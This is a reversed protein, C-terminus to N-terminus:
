HHRRAGDRRRLEVGPQNTTSSCAPHSCVQYARVEVGNEENGTVVCTVFKSGFRGTESWKSPSPNQAQFRAAFQIELSSLFYSDIHRKCIVGEGQDVLDTFIVGVKKLGCLAAIEDVDKEGEWPLTLTVGDVENVQPPEYIAEVVAKIGLPVEPYPAYRGYLYGVRQCGSSRWFKIFNDILAPDSFEVHDVMRFTQQQLIIATPQCKSCIGAPWPTHGSACDKKVRYFPESLPPMYSQGREPKNTSINAKRLYAHFSLHKIKKEELYSADYPELPMCYDCMGKGGHKCMRQDRPRPIKGDEKELLEDVPDQVVKEWPDAGSDKHM